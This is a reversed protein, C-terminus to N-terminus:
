MSHRASNSGRNQVVQMELWQQVDSVRAHNVATFLARSEQALAMAEDHQGRALVVQALAFYAEAPYWPHDVSPIIAVAARGYREAIELEGGHLHYEALSSQALCKLSINDTHEAIQVAELWYGGAKEMEKQSFAQRGMEVLLEGVSSLSGYQRSLTLAEQMYKEAEGFNGRAFLSEGHNRLAGLLPENQGSERALAIAEENLLDARAFDGRQFALWAQNHTMPIIVEYNGLPRALRVSEQFHTEAAAFDGHMGLKVGLNGVLLPLFSDYGIERALQLAEEIQGTRELLECELQRDSSARTLTLAEDYYRRSLEIYGQVQKCEGVYRLVRALEETHGRQRAIQEAHDMQTDLLAYLGRGQLLRRFAFLAQMFWESLGQEYTANLTGIINDIDWELMTFNSATLSEVTHIYFTTMRGIAAPDTMKERAYDRLLPHLRYRRLRGEQVLSLRYLQPLWAGAQEPSIEAVYAAAEPSFDEGSFVGLAAFLHQLEPSLTAYSADFTLRVSRDERTLESLRTENRRLLAAYTVATMDPDAALKGATIALALPLHNWM